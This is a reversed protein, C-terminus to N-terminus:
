QKLNLSIQLSARVSNAGAAARTQIFIIWSTHAPLTFYSTAAPVNWTTGTTTYDFAAQQTSTNNEIIFNFFTFNSVAPNGSSPSISLPSLSFQHSVSDVNTINLPQEYTLTANPYAALALNIWTSNEGLRSGTPWDNGAAFQIPANSVTISGQMLNSYYIAASALAVTSSIALMIIVGLGASFLKKNFKNAPRRVGFLAQLAYRTTVWVLHLTIPPKKSGRRM